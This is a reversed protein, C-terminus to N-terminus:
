ENEERRQMEEFYRKWCESEPIKGCDEECRSDELMIESMPSFNCPTEFDHALQECIFDIKNELETRWNWAKVMEDESIAYGDMAGCGNCFIYWSIEEDDTRVEVKNSGCFPCPKLKKNM